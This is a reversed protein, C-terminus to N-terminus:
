SPYYKIVTRYRTEYHSTDTYYSYAKRRIGYWYYDVGGNDNQKQVIFRSGAAEYQSSSVINGGWYHVRSSTNNNNVWVWYSPKSTYVPGAPVNTTYGSTIWVQYPEIEEYREWVRLDNIMVKSVDQGNISVTRVGAFDITQEAV